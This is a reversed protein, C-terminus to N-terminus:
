SFKVIFCAGGQLNNEVSLECNMRQCAAKAIALGLGLGGTKRSRSKDLRAFPFFITEQFEIPVGPGDDEVSLAFTSGMTKVTIRVSSQCHSLANKVLNDLLLRLYIPNTTVEFKADIDLVIDIHSDFKFTQLRTSIFPKFEITQYFNAEDEDQKSNLKSFAVVQSILEDIDDIYTDINDLLALDKENHSDKRLLGAALQIRSLPTRVEHPVAQAFIQNEKVTDAISDAMANFSHALTNLPKALVEDARADLKGTGFSQTTSVLGNIQKQLKRVPWYITLSIILLLIIVFLVFVAEELSLGTLKEIEEDKDNDSVIDHSHLKDAVLLQVNLRSIRHVALLRGEENLAFTDTGHIKGLYECRQCISETSDLAIWRIDFDETFPLNFVYTQPQEVNNLEIQRNVEAYIYQSDRVFDNVSDQQMMDEVVYQTLAFSFIIAVLISIYLRTFFSLTFLRTINVM